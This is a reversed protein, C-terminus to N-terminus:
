AREAPATGGSYSATEHQQKRRTEKRSPILLQGRPTVHGFKTLVAVVSASGEAKM